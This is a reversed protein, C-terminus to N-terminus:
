LVVWGGDCGCGLLGNRGLGDTVCRMLSTLAPDRLVPTADPIGGTTYKFDHCLFRGLRRQLDYLCNVFFVPEGSWPFTCFQPSLNPLRLTPFDYSVVESVDVMSDAPTIIPSHKSIVVAMVTMVTMKHSRNLRNFEVAIVGYDLSELIVQGLHPPFFILLRFTLTM